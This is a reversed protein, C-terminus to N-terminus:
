TTEKRGANYCNDSALKEITLLTSLAKPVGYKAALDKESVGMELIKYTSLM